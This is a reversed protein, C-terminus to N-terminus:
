DGLDLVHFLLYLTLGADERRGEGGAGGRLIYMLLAWTNFLDARGAQTLRKM